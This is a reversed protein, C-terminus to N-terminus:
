KSMFIVKSSHTLYVRGFKDTFQVMDSNEFDKWSTIEIEGLEDVQARTFEYNFDVVQRNCGTLLIGVITLGILARKM